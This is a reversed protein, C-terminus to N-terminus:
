NSILDLRKMLFFRLFNLFIIWLYTRAMCFEAIDKEFEVQTHGHENPIRDKHYSGSIHKLLHQKHTCNMLYQDCITCYFHCDNTLSQFRVDIVNLEANPKSLTELKNKREYKLRRLKFSDTATENLTYSIGDTQDNNQELIGTHRRSNIHQNLLSVCNILLTKDCVECYKENSNSSVSTFTDKHKELVEDFTELKPTMRGTAKAMKNNIHSISGLHKQIHSPCPPLAKHCIVCFAGNNNKKNSRKCYVIVDPSADKLERVKASIKDKPENSKHSESALHDIACTVDSIKNFEFAENCKGCFFINDCDNFSQLSQRAKLERESVTNTNDM